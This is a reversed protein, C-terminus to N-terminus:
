KLLILKKTSSFSHTTLTYFYIGSPLKDGSFQIFYEGPYKEENILTSLENGLIDYIRLSVFGFESIRFGINTIPNFPNPFNQDLEFGFDKFEQDYIETIISISITDSYETGGDNDIQLLRYNYIVNSVAATDEFLYHKPSFSTGHGEVYGLTEWQSMDFNGREVNFGYNNIETATGWKLLVITDIIEAEFYYIEVPLTDPPKQALLPLCPIILFIILNKLM